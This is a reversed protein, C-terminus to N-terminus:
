KQKYHNINVYLIQALLTVQLSGIRIPYLNVTIEDYTEKLQKNLTMKININSLEFLITNLEIFMM